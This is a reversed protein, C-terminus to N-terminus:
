DVFAALFHVSATTRASKAIALKPFRRQRAILHTEITYANLKSGNINLFSLPRLGAREGEQDVAEDGRATLDQAGKTWGNKTISKQKKERPSILTM